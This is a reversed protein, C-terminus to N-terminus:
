RFPGFLLDGECLDSLRPLARGRLEVLDVDINCEDHDDHMEQMRDEPATLKVAVHRMSRPQRLTVEFLGQEDDGVSEQDQFRFWLLPSPGRYDAPPRDFEVIRAEENGPEEDVIRFQPVDGNEAAASLQELTCIDDFAAAADGCLNAVTPEERCAFVVGVQLPCSCQIGRRLMVGSIVAVMANSGPQEEFADPFDDFESIQRENMDHPLSIMLAHPGHSFSLVPDPGNRRNEHWDAIIEQIRTATATRERPPVTAQIMQRGHPAQWAMELTSMLSDNNIQGLGGLGGVDWGMAEIVLELRDIVYERTARLEERVAEARRNVGQVAAAIIVNRAGSKSCYYEGVEDRFANEVWFGRSHEGLRRITWPRAADPASQRLTVESPDEQEDDVGGDTLYGHCRLPVPSLELICKLCLKARWFITTAPLVIDYDRFLLALWPAATSAIRKLQKSVACIAGLAALDCACLISSLVDDPLDLLHRRAADLEAM